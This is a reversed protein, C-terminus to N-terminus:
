VSVNNSSTPSNEKAQVEESAINNQSTATNESGNTDSLLAKM